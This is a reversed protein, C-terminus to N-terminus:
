ASIKATGRLGVRPQAQGGTIAARVVYALKGDPGPVAEYSSQTIAAQLFNVREVKAKM